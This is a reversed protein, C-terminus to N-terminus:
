RRLLSLATIVGGAGVAAVVVMLLVWLWSRARLPEGARRGDRVLTALKKTSHMPPLAAGVLLALSALLSLVLPVVLLGSVKGIARLQWAQFLVTAAGLAVPLAGLIRRRWIRRALELADTDPDDHDYLM